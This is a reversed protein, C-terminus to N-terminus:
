PWSWAYPFRLRYFQRPAAAPLFISVTTNTNTFSQTSQWNPPALNATADVFGNLGAPFNVIGLQNSGALPTVQTIQVPSIIQQIYDAIVENFKATPDFPDWFIYNAGPGDLPTNGLNELADISQGAYLVNTLGYSAANTLVNDLLSFVNPVYIKLGPNTAATNSLAASFAGNFYIMQSRVFNKDSSSTILDFQPIASIDVANPMVLTRVGKNYLIQVANLQNALSQNLANTWQTVNNYPHYNEVDYVSDADCVWILFLATSVNSPAVFSTVNSVLNPSYQGFFSVNNAAVYRLGQREALVEIWIRGNSFRNGYYDGGSTNYTTSCAGDGFAYLATFAAPAPSVAAAFLFLIVTWRPLSQM